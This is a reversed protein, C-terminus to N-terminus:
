SGTLVAKPQESTPAELERSSDRNDENERLITKAPKTETANTTPTTEGALAVPCTGGGGTGTGVATACGAFGSGTGDPRAFVGLTFGPLCPAFAVSVTVDAGGTFNGGRDPLDANM